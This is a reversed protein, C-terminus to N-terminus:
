RSIAAFFRERGRAIAWRVRIARAEGGVFGPAVCLNGAIDYYCVDFARMQEDLPSLKYHRELWASYRENSM